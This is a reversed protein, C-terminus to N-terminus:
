IALKDEIKATEVNIGFAIKSDVLVAVDNRGDVIDGVLSAALIDGVREINAVINIITLDLIITRACGNSCSNICVEFGAVNDVKVKEVGFTAGGFGVSADINGVHVPWNGGVAIEVSFNNTANAISLM